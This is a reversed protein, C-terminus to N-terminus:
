QARERLRKEIKAKWALSKESVQKMLEKRLEPDSLKEILKRVLISIILDSVAELPEPLVILRDAAKIVEEELIRLDLEGHILADEIIMAVAVKLDKNIKM